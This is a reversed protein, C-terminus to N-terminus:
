GVTIIVVSPFLIFVIGAICLRVERQLRLAAPHFCECCVRSGLMCWLLEWEEALHVDLYPLVEPM